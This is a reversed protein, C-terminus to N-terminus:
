ILHQQTDKTPAGKLLHQWQAGYMSSDVRKEAHSALFICKLGTCLLSATNTSTKYGGGDGGGGVDNVKYVM